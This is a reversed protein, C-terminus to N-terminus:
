EKWVNWYWWTGRHTCLVIRLWHRRRSKNYPPAFISINHWPVSVISKLAPHLLQEIVLLKTVLATSISFATLQQCRCWNIGCVVCYKSLQSESKSWLSSFIFNNSTSPARAGTGWLQRRWQVFGAAEQFMRLQMGRMWCGWTLPPCTMLSTRSDPPAHDGPPPNEGSSRHLNLSFITLMWVLWTDLRRFVGHNKRYLFTFTARHTFSIKNDLKNWHLIFRLVANQYAFKGSAYIAMLIMQRSKSTSPSRGSLRM